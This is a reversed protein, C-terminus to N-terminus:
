QKFNNPEQSVNKYYFECKLDSFPLCILGNYHFTMYKCHLFSLQTQEKNGASHQQSLQLGMLIGPRKEGWDVM